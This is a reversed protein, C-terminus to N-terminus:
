PVIASKYESWAGRIGRENQWCLAVQVTKGRDAEEFHLTFPTRSAMLHHELEEPSDPPTDRVGWIIVAGDYGAPKAKHDAGQVWFDIQLQRIVSLHIVFDVNEAVVTHDTRVTDHNPIGMETRDPNTVPPFRLFQNVFVRLVRVCEAQAEKRREINASTPTELAIDFAEDFPMYIERLEEIRAPPINSWATKHSEVYMIINRMFQQFQAANRPIYDHKREPM